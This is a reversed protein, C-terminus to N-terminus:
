RGNNREKFRKVTKKFKNMQCKHCDNNHFERRRLSANMNKHFKDSCIGLECEKHYEYSPREFYHKTINTKHFNITRGNERIAIAYDSKIKFVYVLDYKKIGSSLGISDSYQWYGYLNIRNIRM